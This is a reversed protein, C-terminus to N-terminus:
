QPKLIYVRQYAMAHGLIRGWLAHNQHQAALQALRAQRGGSPSVRCSKEAETNGKITRLGSAHAITDHAEAIRYGAYKFILRHVMPGALIRHTRDFLGTPPREGLKYMARLEVYTMVRTPSVIPMSVIATHDDTGVRLMERLGIIAERVTLHELVDLALIHSFEDDKFPLQTADALVPSETMNERLADEALDLAIVPGESLRNDYNAVGDSAGIDLVRKLHQDRLLGQVGNYVPNNARTEIPVGSVYISAGRENVNVAM